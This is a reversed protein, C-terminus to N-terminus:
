NWKTLILAAVALTVLYYSVNLIWLTKSKGEWTVQSFSAPVFFGLWTWLALQLAGAVTMAGMYDACRQLVFSMLLAGIFTLIYMPAMSKKRAEEMAQPTWGMERVWAKGFLPGYWLFGIVMNSIAAVIVAWWNITIDM